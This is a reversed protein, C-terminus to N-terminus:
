HDPLERELLENNSEDSGPLPRRPERVGGPPRGDGGPEDPRTGFGPDDMANRVWAKVPTFRRVLEGAVPHQRIIVGSALPPGDADSYELFLGIDRALSRAAHVEIGVVDPVVL